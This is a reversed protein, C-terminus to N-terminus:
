SLPSGARVGLVSCHHTTLSRSIFKVEPHSSEGSCLANKATKTLFYPKRPLESTLFRGQLASSVLEIGPGPLDWTGLPLEALAACSSFGACGLAWAGCCSFGGCHSDWAADSSLLGWESCSSFLRSAALAALFYYHYYM